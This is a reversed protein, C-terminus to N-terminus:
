RVVCGFTAVTGRGEAAISAVDLSKVHLCLVAGLSLIPAQAIQML